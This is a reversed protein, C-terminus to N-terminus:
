YKRGDNCSLGGNFANVKSPKMHNAFANPEYKANIMLIIAPDMLVHFAAENETWKNPNGSEPKGEAEFLWQIGAQEEFIL